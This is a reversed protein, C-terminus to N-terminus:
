QMDAEEAPKQKHECDTLHEDIAQWAEERAIKRTLQILRTHKEPRLDGTM